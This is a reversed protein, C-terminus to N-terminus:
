IIYFNVGVIIRDKKGSYSASHLRDAPFILIMGESPLIEKNPNYLKLIGPEECDQDGISLYYVLSLKRHGCKLLRDFDTIHAHKRVGGGSKFITVFSDKILINSKLNLKLLYIIDEELKNINAINNDFLSFDSGRTNGIIVPQYKSINEANRSEIQYLSKILDQEVPRNSIFINSDQKFFDSRIREIELYKNETIDLDNLISSLLMIEKNNPMITQAKEIAKLASDKDKLLYFYKGLNFYAFFCDPQIEIAKRISLEAEQLNGLDKLIVGYNSFVRYDKFGQDLFYQYYKAAEQINGQSHFKFAQNIIQEKSPTNTNITLNEQNKTLSFPVPFTTIKTVKEKGSEEMDRLDIIAINDQHKADIGFEEEEINMILDLDPQELIFKHLDFNTYGVIQEFGLENLQQAVMNADEERGLIIPTHSPIVKLLHHM